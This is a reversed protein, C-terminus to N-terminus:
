KRSKEGELAIEEGPLTKKGRLRTSGSDGAELVGGGSAKLFHCWKVDMM